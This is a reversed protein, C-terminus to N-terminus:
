IWESTSNLHPWSQVEAWKINIFHVSWLVLILATPFTYPIKSSFFRPFLTCPLSLLLHFSLQLFIKTLIPSLEFQSLIIFSNEPEAILTQKLKTESYM